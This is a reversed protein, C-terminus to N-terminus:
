CGPIQQPKRKIGRAAAVRPALNWDPEFGGRALWEALAQRLERLRRADRREAETVYPVKHYQHRNALLNEQESINANPDM